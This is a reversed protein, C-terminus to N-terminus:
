ELFAEGIKYLSHAQYYYFYVLLKTEKKKKEQKVLLSIKISSLFMKKRCLQMGWLIEPQSTQLTLLTQQYHHNEKTSVVVQNIQFADQCRDSNFNRLKVTIEIGGM